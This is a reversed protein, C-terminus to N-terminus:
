MGGSRRRTIRGVMNGHSSGAWGLRNKIWMRSRFVVSRTFLERGAGGKGGSTGVRGKKYNFKLEYGSGGGEGEGKQTKEKQERGEGRGGKVRRGEGAEVGVYDLVYM